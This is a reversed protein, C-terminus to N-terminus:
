AAAVVRQAPLHNDPDHAQTVVEVDPAEVPALSGSEATHSRPVFAEDQCAAHFFVDGKHILGIRVDIVLNIGGVKGFVL